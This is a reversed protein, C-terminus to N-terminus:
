RGGRAVKKKPKPAATPAATKSVRVGQRSGCILSAQKATVMVVDGPYAKANNVNIGKTIQVAVNKPPPNKRVSPMDKTTMM